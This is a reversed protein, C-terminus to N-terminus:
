FGGFTGQFVSLFANFTWWFVYLIWGCDIGCRGSGRWLAISKDGKWFNFRKWLWQREGAFDAFNFACM